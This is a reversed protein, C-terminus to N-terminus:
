LVFDKNKYRNPGPIGQILRKRGRKVQVMVNSEEMVEVMMAESVEFAVRIHPVTPLAPFFLSTQQSLTM